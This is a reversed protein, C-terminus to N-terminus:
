LPSVTRQAHRTSPSAIRPRAEPKAVPAAGLIQKETSSGPEISLDLELKWASDDADDTILARAEDNPAPIMKALRHVARALAYLPMAQIDSGKLRPSWENMHAVIEPTNLVAIRKVPAGRAMTVNPVITWAYAGIIPGRTKPDLTKPVHRIDPNTGSEYQYDEGECVIDAIVFPAMKTRELLTIKGVYTQVAALRPKGREVDSVILCAPGRPAIRLNWSAARGVARVISAPDCAAIEEREEVTELVQSYIMGLTVRESTIFQKIYNAAAPRSLIRAVRDVAANRYNTM